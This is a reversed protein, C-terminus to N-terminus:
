AAEADPAIRERLADLERALADLRDRVSALEARDARANAALQQVSVIVPPLLQSYQVTGYSQGDIVVGDDNVAEPIVGRLQESLVFLRLRGDRNYFDRYRGIRTVIREVEPLGYPLPKLDRKLRYSSGDDFGGNAIIAGWPTITAIDGAGNHFAIRDSRGYIAWSRGSDRDTLYYAASGGTMHLFGPTPTNLSPKTNPNFNGGHWMDFRNGTNAWLALTTGGEYVLAVADAGSRHFGLRPFSTNMTKLEIHGTNYASGDPPPNDRTLLLRGYIEGGSTSVKAALTSELGSVRAIPLSPVREVALVGSTIASASHEHPDPKYSPPKNRVEDFTPHQSATDPVGDLDAWAHRHKKATFEGPVNTLNGFDRYYAGHEGDLKDADLGKGAGEDRVAANGLGLAARLLLASAASLISKVFPSPASEGLRADMAVRVGDPTVARTRDTGAAAEIRDALEVVGQVTETAPPNLWVTDGFVLQSVDIRQFRVDATLLLSVAADKNMLVDPHSYVAFLTGDDLYLGFARISYSEPGDDRISLHLTDKAVAAGGFTTLRKFEGPLTVLGPAAAFTAASLGIHTLSVARTGTNAPNVLARFGADTVTIFLGSM